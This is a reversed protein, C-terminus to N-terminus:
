KENLASAIENILSYNAKETTLNNRFGFQKEVLMNTDNVHRLLRNYM